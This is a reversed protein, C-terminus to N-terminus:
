RGGTVTVVANGGACAGAADAPSITNVRLGDTTAGSIDTAGVAPGSSEPTGSGTGVNVGNWGQEDLGGVFQSCVGEDLPAVSMSYTQGNGDVSMQVGGPITATGSGDLEWNDPLSGSQNLVQLMSSTGYTAEGAYLNNEIESKLTGFTRNLNGSDLGTFLGGAAAVVGAVVIGFGGVWFLAEILTLGKERRLTAITHNNTKHQKYRM